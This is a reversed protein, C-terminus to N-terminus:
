EPAGPENPADAGTSVAAPAAPAPASPAKRELLSIVRNVEEKVIDSLPNLLAEAVAAAVAGADVQTAIHPGPAAPPPGDLDSQGPPPKPAVETWGAARLEERTGKRTGRPTVIEVNGDGLERVNYPTTTRYHMYPFTLTDPTPAAPPSGTDPAM